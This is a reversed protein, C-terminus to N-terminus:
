LGFEPLIIVLFLEAIRQHGENNPHFGDIKSVLMDGPADSFFDVIPVNYKQAQRTIAQNFAAVRDPTVHKDPEKRFRKIQTLDPLNMIVIFVSDDQRLHQLINEM